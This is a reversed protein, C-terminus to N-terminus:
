LAMIARQFEALEFRREFVEVGFRKSGTQEVPAELYIKLTEAFSEYNDVVTVGQFSHEFLLNRTANGKPLVAILPPEARLMEFLRSPVIYSTDLDKALSVINVKNTRVKRIAEEHDCFGDSHFHHRLDVSDLLSRFNPIDVHGTHRIEYFSRPNEERFRALWELILKADTLESLTGYFGVSMRVPDRPTDFDAEDYGNPLFYLRKEDACRSFETLTLKSTASLLDATEVAERMYAAAAGRIEHSYPLSGWIDRWDSVWKLDFSPKAQIGVRHASVPPSTTILITDTDERILQALERLAPVVFGVKNDPFRSPTFGHHSLRRMMDHAFDLKLAHLLRSPDMSGVRVVKVRSDIRKLLSQDYVPYAIDKVTIVAVDHGQEAFFNAMALSRHVGALGLPPFFYAVIIIQKTESM